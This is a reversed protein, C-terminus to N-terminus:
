RGLGWQERNGKLLNQRPVRFFLAKWINLESFSVSAMASMNNSVSGDVNRSLEPDVDSAAHSYFHILCDWPSGSAVQPGASGAAHLVCM